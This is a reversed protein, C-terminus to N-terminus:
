KAKKGAEYADLLSGYRCDLECKFGPDKMLTKLAEINKSNLKPSPPSYYEAVEPGKKSKKKDKAM